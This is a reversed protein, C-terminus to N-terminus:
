RRAYLSTEGAADFAIVNYPVKRANEMGPSGGPMGPAALGAIKPREALVRLILDAPVHGEIVYGGVTATHCSALPSPVGHSTKITAVDVVDHIVVQFGRSRLHAVWGECCGCAPSKYVVIEQGTARPGAGSGAYALGGLGTAVAVVIWWTLKKRGLRNM